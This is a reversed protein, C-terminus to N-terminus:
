SSLVVQNQSAEMACGGELVLKALPRIDNLWGLKLALKMSDESLYQKVFQHRLRFRANGREDQDDIAALSLRALDRNLQQRQKETIPFEEAKWEYTQEVFRQYLEAQTEPLQGGKAHWDFCLLTLRLPNKVLDRIREKGPEQLAKCLAQGQQIDERPAFWKKIFEKIKELDEFELARYTDFNDLANRSSGWLNVRCTLLIRAQRLWGGEQIQRQMESLANGAVQMEDLGDLLLWVHGLNFQRGFNETDVEAVKARGAERIVRKLWRQELYTELEDDQLDALSVWIVISEPFTESVWRGIKQLLTTKGAGPEGIIAIRKGQSKPSQGQQLVQKLFQQHEFKQTIEEQELDPERSDREIGEQYLESGQEPLVDERRRPVKKREVLGLPVFVQDVEYDVEGRRTMLNTTLQRRPKLLQASIGHWDIELPDNTTSLRALEPEPNIGHTKLLQCWQEDSAIEWLPAAEVHNPQQPRQHRMQVGVVLGDCIVAAGSMGEWESRPQESDKSYESSLPENIRLWFVSDGLNITGRFNLREAVGEIVGLRPYGSIRFEIEEGNKGKPLKGLVVPEVQNHLLERLEVLAIDHDQAMWAIRAQSDIKNKEFGEGADQKLWRVICDAGVGGKLLHKATLVLGGGICYGSGYVKTSDARTFIVEIARNPEFQRVSM